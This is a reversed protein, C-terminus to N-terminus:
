EQKGKKLINKLYELGRMREAEAIRETSAFGEHKERDFIHDYDANTRENPIFAYDMAFRNLLTDLRSFQEERLPKHFVIFPTKMIISFVSAHFSDTFVAKAGSILKVFSLPSPIVSGKNYYEGDVKIIKLRHMVAYIDIKTLLEESHKGLFYTLIYNERNFEDGTEMILSCWEDKDLLFVPDPMVPVDIGTLDHIIKKGAEERVSLTNFGLLYQRYIEKLNETLTSNGFSPAYAFRKEKPAFRLFYFVREKKFKETHSSLWIQDSGAIALADSFDLKVLEKTSIQRLYSKKLFDQFIPKRKEVLRYTRCRRFPLFSLLFRLFDKVRDSFNYLYLSVPYAGLSSIARCLAFNQLRTGYNAYLYNFTVIYTKM